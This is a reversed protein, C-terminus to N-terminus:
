KKYNKFADILEERNQKIEIVEINLIESNVAFVFDYCFILTHIFYYLYDSKSLHLLEKGAHTFHQFQSYLRYYDYMSKFPVDGITILHEFMKEEPLNSKYLEGQFSKKNTGFKDRIKKSSLVKFDNEDDLLEKFQQKLFKEFKNIKKNAEDKDKSLLEQEIPYVKKLYKLFSADLVRIETELTTKNKNFTLLYFGIVMDSICSRFLLSISSSIPKHEYKELLVSISYLNCMLRNLLIIFSENIRSIKRGNFGHGIQNIAEALYLSKEKTLNTYWNLNEM